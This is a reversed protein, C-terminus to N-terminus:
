VGGKRRATVKQVRGPEVSPRMGGWCEGIEAGKYGDRCTSERERNKLDNNCITRQSNRIFGSMQGLLDARVLPGTFGQPSAVQNSSPPCPRQWAPGAWSWASHAQVWRDSSPPMRMGLWVLYSRGSIAPSSIEAM